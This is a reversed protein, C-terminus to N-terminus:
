DLEFPFREINEDAFRKDFNISVTSNKRTIGKRTEESFTTGLTKELEDNSLETEFSIDALDGGYYIATIYPITDDGVYMIYDATLQGDSKTIFTSNEYAKEDPDRIFMGEIQEKKIITVEPEVEVVDTEEKEVEEAPKEEESEIDNSVKVDEVSSDEKITEETCGFLFFTASLLLVYLKMKIGDM